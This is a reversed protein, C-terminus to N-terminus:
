KRRVVSTTRGAQPDMYNGRPAIWELMPKGMGCDFYLGTEADWVMKHFLRSNGQQSETVPIGNTDVLPNGSADLFSPAGYDDYDYRELVNGSADTLALVNGLDDSHYYQAQGAHNFAAIIDTSSPDHDMDKDVCRRVSGWCNAIQVINSMREELVPNGDDCDGGYVYQTTLPVPPQSSSYTTQSIRRGLADYAFTVVLSSKGSALSDVEVLRDDGDYKYTTQGASSSAQVLNGKHDYQRSDFPTQTYQDMQFDAPEPLTADRTYLQVAGNNTM